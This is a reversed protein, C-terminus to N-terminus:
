PPPLRRRLARVLPRLAQSLPRRLAPPLFTRLAAWLVLPTSQALEQLHARAAALEEGQQALRAEMHCLTEQLAAVAEQHRASLAALKEELHRAQAEASEKAEQLGQLALDRRILERLVFETYRPGLSIYPHPRPPVADSALALIYISSSAESAEEKILAITRLPGRLRLTAQPLASAALWLDQFWLEVWRFRAQLLSSLEEATFEQRHYPNGPPYVGKQPTSLILLGQPALVRRVEDLFTEPRELHEITELSVVVQFAGNPFPLHHADGVVFSPGPYHRRAYTIAQPDYDMGVVAVAGAQALMHAGYGTGTAVDLVRRGRVFQTCFRYRLLHELLSIEGQQAEPVLREQPGPLSM